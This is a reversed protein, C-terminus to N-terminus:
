SHKSRSRTPVGASSVTPVSAGGIARYILYPDPSWINGAFRSFYPSEDWVKRWEPNHYVVFMDRPNRSLSQEVLAAFHRMALQGFPNYLFFVCARNPIRYDGADINEVSIRSSGQGSARYREVNHCAAVYLDRSIEVGSIDCFGYEAAMLLVRGMGCGVDVFTSQEILRPPLCSMMASFVYPATAQYWYAQENHVAAINIEGGTSIRFRRDFEEGASLQRIRRGPLRRRIWRVFYPVIGRLGERGLVHVVHGVTIGSQLREKTLPRSVESSHTM